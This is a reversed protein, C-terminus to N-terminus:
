RDPHSYTHIYIYIDRPDSFFSSQHRIWGDMGGRWRMCTTAEHAKRRSNMENLETKKGGKKKKKKKKKESKRGKGITKSLQHRIYLLVERLNKGFDM